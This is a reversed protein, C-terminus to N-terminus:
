FPTSHMTTRLLHFSSIGGLEGESTKPMVPSCWEDTWITTGLELKPTSVPYNHHVIDSNKQSKRPTRGDEVTEDWLSEGSLSIKM